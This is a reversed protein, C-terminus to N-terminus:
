RRPKLQKQLENLRTIHQQRRQILGSFLPRHSACSVGWFKTYFLLLDRELRIAADIFEEASGLGAAIETPRGSSRYFSSELLASLFMEDEPSPELVKDEGCKMTAFAQALLDAGEHGSAKLSDFAARVDDAKSKQSAAAYFQETERTVELVTQLVQSPPLCEGKPM